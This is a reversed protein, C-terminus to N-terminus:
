ASCSQAPVMLTYTLREAAALALFEGAKFARMLITAGGLSVMTLVIAILGTVHSAPVALIAREGSELGLCRRFTILSHIISLHSLMAGKPRGTTGSTYLIVATDDEHASPMPPPSIPELFDIAPERGPV